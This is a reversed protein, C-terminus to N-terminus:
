KRKLYFNNIFILYITESTAAIVYSSAAGNVGFTKSMIIITIIQIILYIGSGILVIRVRELGLFKSIYTNNVSLSILSLSMIQIVQIAEIFKPFLAPIIIPSLIIALVSLIVSLIIIAKKLNKNPNGSADHSLIYNFAINPLLGFIVLFQFGLQYNGLLVYGLIPAVLLKDITGNFTRSIDLIYSNIIFSFRYRLLSFDIRNESFVKYLVIFAPFFSLAMGLIIGNYGIIYYFILSLGVMLIKQLIIYKAYNKYLKKGLLNYTVLGFVVNGVVFLSLAINNLLFFLIISAIISAIIALFYIEPQLKVEKASYVTLTNGSGLFSLVTAISATAILYSVIGYQEVGLLQAMYLWFFGTIGAAIIGSIGLITLGRFTTLINKIKTIDIM